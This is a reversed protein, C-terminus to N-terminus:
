KCNKAEERMAELEEKSKGEGLKNCQDMKDKWNAKVADKAEKGDAARREKRYEDEWKMCDCVTPASNETKEDEGGCSVLVLGLTAAVFLKKM